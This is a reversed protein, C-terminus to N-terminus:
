WSPFLLTTIDTGIVILLLGSVIRGQHSEIHDDIKDEWDSLEIQYIKRKKKLTIQIHM